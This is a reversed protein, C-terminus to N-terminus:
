SGRQFHRPAKFLSTSFYMSASLCQLCRVLGCHLVLESRQKVTNAFNCAFCPSCFDYPHLLSLWTVCLQGESCSLEAEHGGVMVSGALLFCRCPQLHSCEKHTHYYQITSYNRLQKQCLIEWSIPLRPYGWYSLPAEVCNALMMWLPEKKFNWNIFEPFRTFSTAM